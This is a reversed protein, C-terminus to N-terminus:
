TSTVNWAAPTAPSGKVPKRNRLADLELLGITGAIANGYREGKRLLSANATVTKDCLARASCDAAVYEIAATAPLQVM